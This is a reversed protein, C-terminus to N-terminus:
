LRAEFAFSLVVPGASPDSRENWQVIVRVTRDAQVAVSGTGGPLGEVIRRRWQALDVQAATSGALAVPPAASIVINYEGNLARVPNARMRDLIDTAYIAAAARANSHGTHRLGSLKLGVMGLLGVSVLVLAILVEILSTGRRPRSRGDRGPAGARRAITNPTAGATM